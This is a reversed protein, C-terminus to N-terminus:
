LSRLRRPKISEPILLLFSLYMPHSKPEYADLYDEQKSLKENGCEAKNVFKFNTGGISLGIGVAM